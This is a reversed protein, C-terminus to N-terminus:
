SIRILILERLKKNIYPSLLRIRALLPSFREITEKVIKLPALLKAKLEVIELSGAMKGM